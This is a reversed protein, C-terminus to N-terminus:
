QSLKGVKKDDDLDPLLITGELRGQNKKKVETEYAYWNTSSRAINESKYCSYIRGNENYFEKWTANEFDEPELTGSCGGLYKLLAVGVFSFLAFFSNRKIRNEKEISTESNEHIM